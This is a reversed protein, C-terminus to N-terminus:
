LSSAVATAIPLRIHSWLLRIINRRSKVDWVPNGGKGTPLKDLAPGCYGVSAASSATLSTIVSFKKLAIEFPQVIHAATHLVKLLVEM